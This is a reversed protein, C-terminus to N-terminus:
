VCVRARGNKKVEKSDAAAATMAVVSSTTIINYDFSCRFGMTHATCHGRCPCTIFLLIINNNNNNNNYLDLLSNCANVRDNNDGDADYIAYLYYGMITIVIDNGCTYYIYIYITSSDYALDHVSYPRCAVGSTIRYRM